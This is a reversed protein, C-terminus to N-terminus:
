GHSVKSALTAFFVPLYESIMESDSSDDFLDLMALGARLQGAIMDELSHSFMYPQGEDRLQQLEDADLHTLDSYPLKHRVSLQRRELKQEDFLFRVPNVFGCM